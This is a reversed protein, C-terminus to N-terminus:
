PGILLDADLGMCEVRSQDYLVAKLLWFNKPKVGGAEPGKHMGSGRGPIYLCNFQESNMRRICQYLHGPHLSIQQFMKSQCCSQFCSLHGSSHTYYAVMQTTTKKLICLCMHKYMRLIKEPLKYSFNINIVEPSSFQPILPPFLNSNKVACKTSNSM